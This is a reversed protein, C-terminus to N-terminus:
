ESIANQLDNAYDSAGVTYESQDSEDSIYDSLITDTSLNDKANDSNTMVAINEESTGYLESNDLGGIDDSNESNLEWIYNSEKGGICDFLAKIEADVTSATNDNGGEVANSKKGDIFDEMYWDVFKDIDEGGLVQKIYEKMNDSREDSIIDFTNVSPLEGGLKYYSNIFSEM